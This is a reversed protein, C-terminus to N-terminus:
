NIMSSNLCLHGVGSPAPFYYGIAMCMEDTAASDGTKITRNNPNMYECQYTLAGSTFTFFPTTSWTMAGPHEWSTSDFVTTAGDKVFTHVSQKHSHTSMVYFKPVSQDANKPISCIGNVMGPTPNVPTGPDLQISLNYTVYPAAPTVQVGEDYAYANLEVHAHLTDDSANLYHMQIFGYQGPAIPQGVPTGTGTGDDAPLAAEADAMQASYTWVPGNGGTSFGCQDTSLTGPEKQKTPTFFVIMHHSGPTMHSAWKKISLETTNPTRFYYCFTIEVGPKIDVPPSTIQFGRTPPPLSADDPPAAGDTGAAADPRDGIRDGAVNGCAALPILFLFALSSRM